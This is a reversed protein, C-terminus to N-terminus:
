LEFWISGWDETRLIPIKHKQLMLLVQPHPHRYRRWRASAVAQKLNPLKNLLYDSTSTRSGHHGLILIRPSDSIPLSNAWLREEKLTSDGPILFGNSLFIQSLENSKAKSTINPRWIWINEDKICKQRPLLSMKTPTSKGLPADNLCLNSLHRSAKKLAGIHDWDWHTLSVRNIKERCLKRVKNWAFYEGGMDFHWCDNAQILTIWQGQGVNWVVFYKKVAFEESLPTASFSIICFFFIFIKNM